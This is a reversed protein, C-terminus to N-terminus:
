REQYEHGLRRELQEVMWRCWAAYEREYSVGRKLTAYDGFAPLDVPVPMGTKREWNALREEYLAQQRAHQAAQTRFLRIAQEPEALWISYAKLLLENRSPAEEPPETVWQRLTARGADTITYVKKDPRDQQEVVEHTVLGQEELRALEPYIQSYRAHWFFGLPDKLRRGLDYGSLPQRALLTLLAYGLTTILGGRRQEEM